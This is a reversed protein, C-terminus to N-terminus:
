IKAMVTNMNTTEQLDLLPVRSALAVGLSGFDVVVSIALSGGTNFVSFV